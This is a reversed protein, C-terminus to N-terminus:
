IKDISEVLYLLAEAREKEDPIESAAHYARELVSHDKLDEFINRYLNFKQSPNMDLRDLLPALDRLAAKKVQHIDLNEASPTSNPAAEAPTPEPASELASETTPEPALNTSEPASEPM